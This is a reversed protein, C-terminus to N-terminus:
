GADTLPGFFGTMQAILGCTGIKGFSTGEAIQAGTENQLTWRFRVFNNHADVKSALKLFAGPDDAHFKSIQDSLATRTLTQHGPDTYVGDVKWCTELLALRKTADPENWSACYQTILDDFIM